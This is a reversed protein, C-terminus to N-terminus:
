VNSASRNWSCKAFTFSRRSPSVMSTAQILWLVAQAVSHRFYSGGGGGERVKLEV